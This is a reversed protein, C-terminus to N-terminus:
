LDSRNYARKAAQWSAIERRYGQSGVGHRPNTHCASELLKAAGLAHVCIGPSLYCACSAHVFGSLLSDRPRYILIVEARM